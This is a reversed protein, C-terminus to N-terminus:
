SMGFNINHEKMIMYLGYPGFARVDDNDWLLRIMRGAVTLQTMQYVRPHDLRQRFLERQSEQVCMSAGIILPWLMIATYHSDRIGQSILITTNMHKQIIELSQPSNVVPGCIATELVMLLTRCFVERVAIAERPYTVNLSPSKATSELESRLSKYTNQLSTSLTGNLELDDLCQRAFVSINVIYEFIDHGCSFFAGYLPYQQLHDLNVVLHDLPIAREPM